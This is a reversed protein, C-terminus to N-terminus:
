FRTTPRKANILKYLKEVQGALTFERKVKERGAKALKQAKERDELLERLAGAVAEPADQETLRGTVGDEILEPIGAVKTSVCPVEMAMAEMLAVPIQDRAGREDVRCALAFARAEGLLEKVKGPHTPGLLKVRESVGLRGALESLSSEEPGTGAVELHAEIDQRALKELARILVDHGKRKDLSGVSVIKGATREEGPSLEAPDVGLHVIGFKGRVEEGALSVLKELSHRSTAAVWSANRTYRALLPSDVYLALPAHLTFGFPIGTLVCAVHVSILEDGTGPDQMLAIHGENELMSALIAGRLFLGLRIKLPVSTRTKGAILMRILEPAYKHPKRCLWKLQSKLSYGSLDGPFYRTVAALRERADVHQSFRPRKMSFVRVDVGLDLMGEVERYVFTETIKPFEHCVYAWKGEPNL